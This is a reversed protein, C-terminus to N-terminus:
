VNCTATYWCCVNSISACSSGTLASCQTKMSGVTSDSVGVFYSILFCIPDISEHKNITTSARPYGKHVAAVDADTEGNPLVYRWFGTSQYAAKAKDAHDKAGCDGHLSVPVAGLALLKVEYPLLIKELHNSTMWNPSPDNFRMLVSADKIGGLTQGVEARLWAAVELDKDRPIM